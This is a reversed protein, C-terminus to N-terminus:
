LLSGHIMVSASNMLGPLPCANVRMKMRLRFVPRVVSCVIFDLSENSTASMVSVSMCYRYESPSNQCKMCWSDNSCCWAPLVPTPSVAFHSFPSSSHTTVSNLPSIMATCGGFKTSSFIVSVSGPTRPSVEPPPPLGAVSSVPATTRTGSNTPM